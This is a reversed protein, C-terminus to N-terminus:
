IQGVSFHFHWCEESQVASVYTATRYMREVTLVRVDKVAPFARRERRDDDDYHRRQVEIVACHIPCCPLVVTSM